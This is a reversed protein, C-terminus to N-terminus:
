MLLVSCCRDSSVVYLFGLDSGVWAILFSQQEVRSKKWLAQRTSWLSLFWGLRLPEEDVWTIWKHDGWFGYIRGSDEGDRKWGVIGVHSTGGVLEWAIDGVAYLSKYSCRWWVDVAALMEYLEKFGDWRRSNIGEYVREWNTGERPRYVM